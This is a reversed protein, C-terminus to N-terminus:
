PVEFDAALRVSLRTQNGEIQKVLRYSGAQLKPPLSVEETFPDYGPSAIIGVAPVANEMPVLRWGDSAKRYLLYGYGLMLDTPGANYVSLTMREEDAASRQVSLRANLENPPVFLPTLFTDEVLGEPSLIEVSLLYNTDPRSPLRQSFDLRGDVADTRDGEYEAILETRKGSADRGTLQFRM